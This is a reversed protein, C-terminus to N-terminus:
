DWGVVCIGPISFYFRLLLCGKQTDTHRRTRTHACMYPLVLYCGGLNPLHSLLYLVQWM